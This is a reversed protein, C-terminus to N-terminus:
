SRDGLHPSINHGVGQNTIHIINELKSM